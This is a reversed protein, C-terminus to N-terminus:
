DANPLFEKSNLKTYEQKKIKTIEFVSYEPYGWGLGLCSDFSGVDTLLFTQEETYEGIEWGYRELMEYEDHEQSDNTSTFFEEFYPLLLSEPSKTPEMFQIGCYPCNRWTKEPKYFRNCGFCKDLNTPIRFAKIVELATKVLHKLGEEPTDFGESHNFSITAHRWSEVYGFGIRFVKYKM